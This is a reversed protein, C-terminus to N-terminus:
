KNMCKYSYNECKGKLSYNCDQCQSYANNVSPYDYNVNETTPKSHVLSDFNPPSYYVEKYVIANSLPPNFAVKGFNSNALGFLNQYYCSQYNPINKNYEYNSNYYYSM